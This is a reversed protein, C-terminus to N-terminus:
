KLGIKIIENKVNYIDTSIIVKSIVKGNLSTIKYTKCEYGNKGTQIIVSKKREIYKDYEYITKYPIFERISTQIEVDYEIEQKKGYIEVKLVGNKASCEIKIPYKRTNKFKFDIYGDAVTADRGVQIYGPLFQHNKREVIELNAYLSANYLTTSVQCIGGGIGEVLRGGQYMPAYKFGAEETRNGVIDNYSFVKEPLIVTGNIKAVALKINESRNINQENFETEYKALLDTYLEDVEEIGDIFVEKSIYKNSINIYVNIVILLLCIFLIVFMRIHKNSIYKINM